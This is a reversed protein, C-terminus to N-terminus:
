VRKEIMVAGPRKQFYQYRHHVIVRSRLPNCRAECAQDLQQCGAEASGHTLCQQM